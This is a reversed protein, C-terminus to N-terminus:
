AYQYRTKMRNLIFLTVALGLLEAAPIAMFAGTLGFLRPLILLTVISFLLTRCLSILASILGNQLATFMMSAFSSVGMFVFGITIIRFSRIAMVYVPDGPGVDFIRILPSALGWALGTTVLSVLAIIVMSYKYLLKLRDTDKKGYNFGIIPLIGSAYGIFLSALINMTSFTIGVAAVAIPGDLTMLINNMFTALVATSMMTVLESSGNTASSVLVKTDWKPKVFYLTGKKNRIFYVFGILSNLSMSLGTAMAAGFLGMQLVGIFLWNLFVGTLGGILYSITSIHAKGETMLFQQFLVGMVIMPLFWIIPTLYEIVLPQIQTDAGLFSALTTPSILGFSSMVGSVVFSVLLIFSFIARAKDLQNEGITKATLANGGVGLMFGISLAFMLFPFAITVASLAHTDILRSVFLSDVIGFASMLVMSLITPLSFKLLFQPTIAKDLRDDM